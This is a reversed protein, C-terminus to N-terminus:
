SGLLSYIKINKSINGLTDVIAGFIGIFVLFYLINESIPLIEYILHINALLYLSLVFDVIGTIILIMNMNLQYRVDKSRIKSLNAIGTIVAFIGIITLYIQLESSIINYDSDFVLPNGNFLKIIFDVIIRFLNIMNVPLIIIFLGFIVGLLGNFLFENPKYYDSMNDKIDGSSTEKSSFDDPFYGEESLGIFIVTIIIIFTLIVPYSLSIGNFFAKSFDGPELLVIQVLSIVFFILFVLGCLVQSYISWLEESIFHKPTGRKKYSKAIEKPSGLRNIAEKISDPDPDDSGAIEYASDWIHSRIEFLIDNLKDKDNKLWDPLNDKIEKLFKDILKDNNITM